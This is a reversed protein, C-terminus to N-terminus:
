IGRDLLQYAVRNSYKDIRFAERIGGPQMATMAMCPISSPLSYAMYKPLLHTRGRRRARRMPKATDHIVRAQKIRRDTPPLDTAIYM